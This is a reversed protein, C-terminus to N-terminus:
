QARGVDAWGEAPPQTAVPEATARPHNHSRMGSSSHPEPVMEQVYLEEM